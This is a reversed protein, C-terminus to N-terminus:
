FSIPARRHITASCVPSPRTRRGPPKLPDNRIARANRAASASRFRGAAVAPPRDGREILALMDDVAFPKHLPGEAGAQIAREVFTEKFGTMM